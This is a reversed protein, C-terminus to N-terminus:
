TPTVMERLRTSIISEAQSVIRHVLEAVSLVDDILSQSLGVTWVGADLDGTEFVTRGRAGAVLPQIDAFACGARLRSLVEDSVINRAGRSTNNVQRMILNTDLETAEVIRRKVYSHVPAEQSALFRTGMSVGDAGLALAAALGAGTAIGGCAIVPVSVAAVTAPILM